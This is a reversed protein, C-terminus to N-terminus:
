QHRRFEIARGQLAAKAKARGRSRADNAQYRYKAGTPGYQYFPGSRDRGRKV